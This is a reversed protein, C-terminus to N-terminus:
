QKLIVLETRTVLLAVMTSNLTLRGEGGLYKKEGQKNAALM